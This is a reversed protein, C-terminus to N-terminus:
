KSTYSMTMGSANQYQKGRYASIHLSIKLSLTRKTELIERSLLCSIAVKLVESVGQRHQTPSQGNRFM